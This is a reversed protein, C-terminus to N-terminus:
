DEDEAPRRAPRRPTAGLRVEGASWEVLPPRVSACLPGGRADTLALRATLLGHERTTGLTAPDVADLMLKARRFMTFTGASDVAGWSLYIFRDGPRGQVYPGTIDLGAPTPTMAAPLTWVARPADGSHPDLLDQPRNRRQVAVQLNRYRDADGGPGWDRGPLDTAEIRIEIRGLDGDADRRGGPTGGRGTM